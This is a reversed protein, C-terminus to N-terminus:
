EVDHGVLHLHDVGGEDEDQEREEVFSDVREEGLSHQRVVM